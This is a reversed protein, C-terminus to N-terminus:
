LQPSFNPNGETGHRGHCGSPPAKRRHVPLRRPSRWRRRIRGQVNRIRQWCCSCCGRRWVNQHTQNSSSPKLSRFLFSSKEFNRRFEDARLEFTIKESRGFKRTIRRSRPTTRGARHSKGRQWIVRAASRWRRLSGIVFYKVVLKERKRETSSSFLLTLVNGRQEYDERGM